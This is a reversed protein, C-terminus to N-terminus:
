QTANHRKPMPGSRELVAYMRIPTLTSAFELLERQEKSAGGANPRGARRHIFGRVDLGTNTRSLYGPKPLQRGEESTFPAALQNM